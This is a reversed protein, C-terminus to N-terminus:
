KRILTRVDEDDEINNLSIKKNMFEPNDWNRNELTSNYKYHLMREKLKEYFGDPFINEIYLNYFPYTNIEISKIRNLVHIKIDKKSMKYFKISEKLNEKLNEKLSEKEMVLGNILM